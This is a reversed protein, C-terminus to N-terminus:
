CIMYFSQITRIWSDLAFASFFHWWAHMQLLPALSTDVYEQCFFTHTSYCLIAISAFVITRQIYRSEHRYERQQKWTGYVLLLLFPSLLFLYTIELGLHPLRAGIVGGMILLTTVSIAYWRGRTFSSHSSWLVYCSTNLFLFIGVLDIIFGYPAGIVHHVTSCIGILFLLFYLTSIIRQPVLPARRIM